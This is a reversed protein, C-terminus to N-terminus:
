RAWSMRWMKWPTLRSNKSVIGDIASTAIVAFALYPNMSPDPHRYELRNIRGKYYPIRVM